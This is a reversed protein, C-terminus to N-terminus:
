LIDLSSYSEQTSCCERGSRAALLLLPSSVGISFGASNIAISVLGGRGLASVSVLPISVDRLAIECRGDEVGWEEAPEKAMLIILM